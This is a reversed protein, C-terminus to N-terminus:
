DFLGPVVAVMRELPKEGRALAEELAQRQPSGRPPMLQNEKATGRYREFDLVERIRDVQKMKTVVVEESEGSMFDLNAAPNGRHCAFCYKEYLHLVSGTAIALPKVGEALPPSMGESTAFASAPPQAMGLEHLLAQVIAVRRFPAPGFLRSVRESAVAAEFGALTGGGARELLRKDNPGLLQAIGSVGEGTDARLIRKPARPTLPDLKAPLPPLKAFDLIKQSADSAPPAFVASRLRALVGAGATGAVLPNRNPLDGDPVPIGDTPWSMAQLDLLRRHGADDPSYGGPDLAFTLAQLLLRRRCEPGREPDGGCGDIWIRQAVPLFNAVDTLDDVMEARFLKSAVPVGVYEGAAEPSRGMAAAVRSAIERQGNTEQWPREPFIPAENAHCTTCFARRAYLIRPVGGEGYDEVIQFEFRGAEENYSLIEIERAAEVFGLFLRGKFVAGLDADSEPPEANAAVVLRPRAFSAQAKLLSRGDPILVAVPARGHADYRALLEVLRDFPYPLGGNEKILHDFLSRTGDPPLDSPPIAQVSLFNPNPAAGSRRAAELIGPAARASGGDFAVFWGLALAAIALLVGALIFLARIM